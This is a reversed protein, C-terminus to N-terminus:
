EPLILKLMAYKCIHECYVIDSKQETRRFINVISIPTYLYNNPDDMEINYLFGFQIWYPLCNQTEYYCINEFKEFMLEQALKLREEANTKNDPIYIISSRTSQRLKQEQLQSKVINTKRDEIEKTEPSQSSSQVASGVTKKLYNIGINANKYVFSGIRDLIRFPDTFDKKGLIKTSRVFDLYKHIDFQNFSNKVDTLNLLHCTIDKDVNESFYFDDFFFISYAHFPKYTNILYKPVNITTVSPPIFIQEYKFKNVKETVGVHHYYFKGYTEDIFEEYKKIADFATLENLIQNFATSTDMSYLIPNVLLLRVVINPKNFLLPEQLQLSLIKYPKEFILDVPTDSSMREAIEYILLTWTEYSNSSINLQLQKVMLSPLNMQIICFSAHKIIPTRVFSVYHVDSYQIGDQDLLNVEFKMKVPTTQEDAM